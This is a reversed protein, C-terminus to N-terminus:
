QSRSYLTTMWRGAEDPLGASLRAETDLAVTKPGHIQRGNRNVVLKPLQCKALITGAAAARGLEYSNSGASKM